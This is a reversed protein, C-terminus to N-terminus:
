RPPNCRSCPTYGRAKADKLSIPIMSKRLYSCSARHYKSGTKTIYVTIKSEDETQTETKVTPSAPQCIKCAVYGAKEAEEISSFVILNEPKIKKAWICDPTHFKNSNKSGVFYTGKKETEKSANQSWLGRGAERAETQLKLFLEQYKVNPPYTSVQAYGQKVLEANVFTTDVWVYALTRGYKDKAQVDTEIRVTKGEVLQKNFVTAEEGFPEIPKYPHKTEPTNIGIYRIKEGNTLEITDGDIVKSVKAEYGQLVNLSIGTLFITLLSALILACSKNRM